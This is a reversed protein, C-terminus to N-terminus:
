AAGRRVEAVVERSIAVDLVYVGEQHTDLWEQLDDLDALTHANTGSYPFDEDATSSSEIGPGGAV